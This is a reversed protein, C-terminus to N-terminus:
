KIEEAGVIIKTKNYKINYTKNYELGLDTHFLLTEEQGDERKVVVIKMDKNTPSQTVSSVIVKEEPYQSIDLKIDEIYAPVITSAYILGTVLVFSTLKKFIGKLYIYLFATGFVTLHVIKMILSIYILEKPTGDYIKTFYFVINPLWFPYSFFIFLLMDIAVKKCVMKGLLINAEINNEPGLERLYEYLIVLSNFKYDFSCSSDKIQKMRRVIKDTLLEHSKIDIEDLDYFNKDIEKGIYGYLSQAEKSYPTKYKSKYFNKVMQAVSNFLNSNKDNQKLSEIKCIFLLTDVASEDNRKISNKIRELIDM